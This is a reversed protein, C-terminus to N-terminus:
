VFNITRRCIEDFIPLSVSILSVNLRGSDYPLSYHGYKVCAKEGLSVIIRWNAVKLIGCFAVMIAAVISYHKFLMNKTQPDLMSFNCLFSNTQDIFSNRRTLINDDGTLHANFIHGM